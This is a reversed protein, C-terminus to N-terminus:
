ISGGPRVAEEVAEVIWRRVARLRADNRADRHFVLWPTRDPLREPSALVLNARRAIFTPLPAIGVGAAAAAALARVSGARVVVMLELRRNKLWLNEAIDGFASDYWLLKEESLIVDDAKRGALYSKSAFLSIEILPLRRAILTDGAPKVMRIAIDADGRNLNSLEISSELEIKLRPNKELLRPLAPALIDAIMPETSSLRVPPADEAAARVLRDILDFQEAGAKVLALVRTGQSTLTVGGPGRRFLKFGLDAELADIRRALTAVSLQGAAAARSLSGKEAVAKFARLADWGAKGM